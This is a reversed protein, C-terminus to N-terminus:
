RTAHSPSLPPVTRSRSHAGANVEREAGPELTATVTESGSLYNGSLSAGFTGAGDGTNELTFRVTATTRESARIRDPSVSLDTVAFVPPENLRDITTGPLARLTTGDFLM